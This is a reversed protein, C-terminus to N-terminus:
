YGVVSGVCVCVCVCVCGKRADGTHFNRGFTKGSISWFISYGGLMLLTCKYVRGVCVCVCM